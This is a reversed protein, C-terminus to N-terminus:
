YFGNMYDNIIQMSNRFSAMYVTYILWFFFAWVVMVTLTFIMRRKLTRKGTCWFLGLALLPFLFVMIGIFINKSYFPDSDCDHEEILLDKNGDAIAEVAEVVNRNDRSSFEFRTFKGAKDHFDMYGGDPGKRLCYEIRSMDSYRIPHRKTDIVEVGSKKLALSQGSGKIMNM